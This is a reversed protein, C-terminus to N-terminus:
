AVQPNPNIRTVPESAARGDDRLGPEYPSAQAAITAEVLRAAAVQKPHMPLVSATRASLPEASRDLDM